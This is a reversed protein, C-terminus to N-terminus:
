SFTKIFKLFNQLNRAFGYPFVNNKLNKNIKKRFLLSLDM